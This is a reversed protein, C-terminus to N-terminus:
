RGHRYIRGLAGAFSRGAQGLFVYGHWDFHGNSLSRDAAPEHLHKGGHRKRNEHRHSHTHLRCDHLLCFLIDLSVTISGWFRLNTLPKDVLIGPLHLEVEVLHM